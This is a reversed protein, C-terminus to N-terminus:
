AIAERTVWQRAAIAIRTAKLGEHLPLRTSGEGRSAALLETLQLQYADDVAFRAEIRVAGDQPTELSLTREVFDLTATARDGVVVIKRTPQRSVCDLAIEIPLGDSGLLHLLAVDECDTELESRHASVVHALTCDGFLMIALDIEHVLDFIVGGGRAASASYSTRYDTGQRWDPLYQGCEFRARVTRGLRGEELLQKLQTVPELFRLVCGVQIPGLQRPDLAELRECEDQDIVVPKEVFTPIRAGLLPALVQGHMDSPTAVVALEPNWAIAASLDDFILANNAQSYEDALGSARFFAFKAQPVLNILNRIHRRGISGTGIVLIRLNEAATLVM